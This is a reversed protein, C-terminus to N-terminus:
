TRPWARCCRAPDVSATGELLAVAEELQEISTATDAALRGRLWLPQPGPRQGASRMRARPPMSSTLRAARWTSQRSADGVVTAAASAADHWIASTAIVQDRRSRSSMGCSSRGSSVPSGGRRVCLRGPLRRGRRDGGDPRAPDHAATWHHALEVLRSAGAAGGGAPREEIARAYAAYFARRESPLLEDYVAEQVLAHRFRYREIERDTDVVLFADVSERLAARLKSESLGCVEALM